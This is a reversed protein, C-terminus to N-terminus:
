QEAKGIRYGIFGGRTAVTVSPARRTRDYPPEPDLWGAQPHPLESERECPRGLARQTDGDQAIEMDSRRVVIELPQFQDDVPVLWARGSKM